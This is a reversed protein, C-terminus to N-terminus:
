QPRKRDVARGVHRLQPHNAVDQIKAAGLVAAADALAPGTGHVEAASGHAGALSGDGGGVVCLDGRDFSKRGGTRM